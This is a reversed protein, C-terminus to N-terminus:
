TRGAAGGGGSAGFDVIALNLPLERRRPIPTAQRSDLYNGFVGALSFTVPNLDGEYSFGNLVFPLGDSGFPSPSSMLRFHLHPYQSDGSNGIVGLVERRQVRDGVAVTLSGPQLNGYFAYAGNGHDVVIYNGDASEFTTGAPDVVGGVPQDPLADLLAVVRGPAVASVDAGYSTFNTLQTPDDHVFLGNDDLQMLDVAFRLPGWLGGNVPLITSRDVNGVDCCGNTVVWGNGRVPAVLIPPAPGDLSVPGIVYVVRSPTTARPSRAAQLSLRHAVVLPLNASLPLALDVFFLREGGPEIAADSAPTGGTERVRALLEDGEYTRVPQNTDADLVQLQELTAPVPGRNSLRLEYIVHYKRDTGLVPAPNNPSLLQALVPTYVNRSTAASAPGPHLVLSPGAGVALLLVGAAFARLRPVPNM